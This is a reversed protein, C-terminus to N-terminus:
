TKQITQSKFICQSKHVSIGYKIKTIQSEIKLKGNEYDNKLDKLARRFAAYNGMIYMYSLNYGATQCKTELNRDYIITCHSM